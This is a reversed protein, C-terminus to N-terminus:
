SLKDCPVERTGDGRALIAETVAVLFELSAAAPISIGKGSVLRNSNVGLKLM